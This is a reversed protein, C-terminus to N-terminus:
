NEPKVYKRAGKELQDAQHLAIKLNNQAQLFGPKLRLAETFHVIAEDFRGKRALIVGLSNHAEAFDPKLEVARTFHALAEDMKGQQALVNGMNFSAEAFDPDLELARSVHFRAENLRGQDMLVNGLNNHAGAFDPKLELAKTFHTVAEENKGQRAFANGLNNHARPFRPNINLAKIYHTIAGKVRGQKALAVGLNNYADPYAPKIRLSEAYLAMAKNLKGHAQYYTGLNNYAMWANPNKSITDLYLKEVDRYINGQQWVRVGLIFLVISCMAFGIKKHKPDLRQLLTAIGAAALGILGISALYQFHDAVFSFRMPYVDFFGLAPILTTVFFVLAVLPGKGIRRRLLWFVFIVAAAALPFLYQWWVGSDIQWRPYIFTLKHPWVLKSAYFLLARGAVLLRDVFSLAWEEGQAGVHYKEMWATTLGLVAGVVFFPILPLVDRWGVRNQKWWLVLLIAAPMSCTVTKSLLACVFLLLSFIYFRWRQKRHDSTLHHFNSNPFINAPDRDLSAFRFYALISSLYFLGSLVNKRETIWAVSEVHVPHLVFIAAALWAGPVSLYRLVLFVLFGNLGHLLVNVLHYGLPHLQWLHYELWFTTHVLPYYQPSVKPELWIRGLGEVTRLSFNNTVYVDDDWIYGSLIAPIYVAVTVFLVLGAWFM